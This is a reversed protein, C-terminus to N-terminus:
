KTLQELTDILAERNAIPSDIIAVMTKYVTHYPILEAKRANDLTYDSWRSEIIGVQRKCYDSFDKLTLEKKMLAQRYENFTDRETASGDPMPTNDLDDVKEIGRQDLWKQLLKHM